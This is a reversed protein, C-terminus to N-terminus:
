RRSIKGDIRKQLGTTLFKTILIQNLEQNREILYLNKCSNNDSFLEVPSFQQTEYGLYSVTIIANIPVDNLQFEGDENTITGRTTNNILISAGFLPLIDQKSLIKGCITITKEIVSVTIYRNDLTKFNLLTKKNLYDLTEQLSLNNKPKEIFITSVDEFAYSFKVDFKVEVAEIIKILSTKELNNQSYCFNAIFILIYILSKNVKM